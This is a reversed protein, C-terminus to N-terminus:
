AAYYGYSRNFYQEEIREYEKLIFDIGNDIDFMDGCLYSETDDVNRGDDFPMTFDIDYETMISNKSRYAIKIYVLERDEDDLRMAISWIRKNNYDVDTDIYATVSVDNLKRLSIYHKIIKAKIEAKSMLRQVM